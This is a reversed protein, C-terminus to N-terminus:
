CKVGAKSLLSIIDKARIVLITKDKLEISITVFKDASQGIQTRCDRMSFNNKKDVLICQTKGEICEM